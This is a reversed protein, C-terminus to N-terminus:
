QVMRRLLFDIALPHDVLQRAVAITETGPGQVRHKVRHFAIAIQGRAHLAFSPDPSFEVFCGFEAFLSERQRLDPNPFKGALRHLVSASQRRGGILWSAELPRRHSTKVANRFNPRVEKPPGMACRPYKRFSSTM